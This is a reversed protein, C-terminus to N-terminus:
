LTQQQLLWRKNGRIFNFNKVETEAEASEKGTCVYKYLCSFSIDVESKGFYIDTHLYEYSTM